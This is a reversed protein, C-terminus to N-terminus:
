ARVGQPEYIKVGLHRKAEIGLAYVGPRIETQRRVWYKHVTKSLADREREAQKESHAAVYVTGGQKMKLPYVKM